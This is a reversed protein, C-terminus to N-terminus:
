SGQGFGFDGGGGLLQRAMTNYLAQQAHNVLHLNSAPQEGDGSLGAGIAQVAAAAPLGWSM